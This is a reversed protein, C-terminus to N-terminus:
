RWQASNCNSLLLTVTTNCFYKDFKVSQKVSNHIIRNLHVLNGLIEPL